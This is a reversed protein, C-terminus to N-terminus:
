GLSSIQKFNQFYPYNIEKRGMSIRRPGVWIKSRRFAKDLVRLYECKTESKNDFFM